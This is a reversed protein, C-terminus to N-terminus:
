NSRPSYLALPLHGCTGDKSRQSTINKRRAVRVGVLLPPLPPHRAWPLPGSPITLQDLSLSRRLRRVVMDEGLLHVVEPLAAVVLVVLVAPGLLVVRRVAVLVVLVELLAAVLLAAVLSLVLLLLGVVPAAVLSLALSLALFLALLLAATLLKTPTGTNTSTSATTSMWGPQSASRKRPSRDWRSTKSPIMHTILMKM